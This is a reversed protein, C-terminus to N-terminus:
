RSRPKAALRPKGPTNLSGAMVASYSRILLVAVASDESVVAAEVAEAAVAAEVAEAAV